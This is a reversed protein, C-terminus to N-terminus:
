GTGSASVLAEHALDGLGVQGGAVAAEADVGELAQDVALMVHGQDHAVDLGVLVTSTRTCECHRVPSMKAELRQSQPPWSAGARSVSRPRPRAAHQEVQALLAAPMPRMWLIM